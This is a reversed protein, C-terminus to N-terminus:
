LKLQRQRLCGRGLSMSVVRMSGINMHMKPVNGLSTDIVGIVSPVGEGLNILKGEDIRMELCM